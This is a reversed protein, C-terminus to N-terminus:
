RRGAGPPGPGTVTRSGGPSGRGRGPATEIDLTGGLAAVHDKLGRPGHRPGRPLRLRRRRGRRCFWVGVDCSGLRVTGGTGPRAHKAANQVAEVCCFFLTSEITPSHRGLGEDVFSVPLPHGGTAVRLAAVVGRARARASLLGPRCPAREALAEDVERASAASSPGARPRARSRRRRRARSPGRLAVLRQQASDHLDRQIRRRETTAPMSSAAGSDRLEGELHGARVAILTAQAAAALLEPHDGSPM